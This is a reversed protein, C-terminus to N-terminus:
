FMPVTKQAVTDGVFQHVIQISLDSMLFRGECRSCGDVLCNPM